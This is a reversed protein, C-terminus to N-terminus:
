GRWARGDRWDPGSPWAQSAWWTAAARSLSSGVLSGASWVTGEIFNIEGIFGAVFANGPREYIDEPSAFQQVSGDRMVAIRDAM